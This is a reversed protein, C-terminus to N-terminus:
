RRGICPDIEKHNGLLINAVERCGCDCLEVIGCSKCQEPKYNSQAFDNWYEIDTIIDQAFINGVIRPSHNCARIEGSPGVVFFQKAAACQTGISLREYKSPSNIICYPFETGVHGRRKSLGLVEETTDLMGNLQEKNLTLSDMYELGRGGPLFRNLLVDSAGNILGVSVTEFLEFYNKRTVTVNVTTQLGIAKAKRFWTLVGKANDVGTHDKFTTYGPLSMSLHVNLRKFLHLYEEKMALGNSILTIVNNIGRREGETRIYMLIDEFGEKLTVEGGSISFSQVGNDYLRDIARKWQEVSLEEGKPYTSHPAYWPCSCFICKHNCRYTLELAVARPLHTISLM